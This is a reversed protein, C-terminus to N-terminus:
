IPLADHLSLTDSLTYMDATATCIFFFFSIQMPPRRSTMATPSCAAVSTWFYRRSTVGGFRSRWRAGGIKKKLCFVAYSNNLPSQLESTHEESRVTMKTFLRRNEPVM